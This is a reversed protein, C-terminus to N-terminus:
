NSGASFKCAKKGVKKRERKEELSTGQKKGKKEFPNYLM